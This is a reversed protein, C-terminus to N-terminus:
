AHGGGGIASNLEAFRQLILGGFRFVASEIKEEPLRPYKARVAKCYQDVWLLIAPGRDEPGIILLSQALGDIAASQEPTLKVENNSM